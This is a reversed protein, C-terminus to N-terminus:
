EPTSLVHFSTAPFNEIPLVRRGHDIAVSAVLVRGPSRHWGAPFRLLPPKAHPDALERCRIGTLAAAHSGGAVASDASVASALAVTVVGAAVMRVNRGSVRM